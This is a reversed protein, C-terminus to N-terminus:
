PELSQRSCPEREKSRLPRSSQALQVAFIRLSISVSLFKLHAGCLVVCKGKQASFLAKGKKWRDMLPRLSEVHSGGRGPLLCPWAWLAGAYRMRMHVMM